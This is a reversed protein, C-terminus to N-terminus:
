VLLEWRRYAAGTDIDMSMDAHLDIINLTNNLYKFILTM